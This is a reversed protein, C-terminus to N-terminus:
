CRASRSAQWSSGPGFPMCSLGRCMAAAAIHTLTLWLLPLTDPAQTWVVMRIIAEAVVLGGSLNSLTKRRVDAGRSYVWAIAYLGIILAEGLMVSWCTAGSWDYNGGIFPIDTKAIIEVLRGLWHIIFIVIQVAGWVAAFWRLHVPLLGATDADFERRFESTYIATTQTDRM